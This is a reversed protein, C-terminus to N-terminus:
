LLEEVRDVIKGEKTMHWSQGCACQHQIGNGYKHSEIDKDKYCCIHIYGGLDVNLECCYGEEYAKTM